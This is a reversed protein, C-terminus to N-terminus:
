FNLFIQLFNSLTYSTLTCSNDLAPLLILMHLEGNIEGEGSSIRRRPMPSHTYEGRGRLMPESFDESLPPPSSSSGLSSISAGDGRGVFGGESLLSVVRM